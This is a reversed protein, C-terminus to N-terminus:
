SQSNPPPATRRAVVGGGCDDTDVCQGSPDTLGKNVMRSPFRRANRWKIAGDLLAHLPLSVRGTDSRGFSHFHFLLLLSSFLTQFTPPIVSPQFISESLKVDARVDESSIWSKPFSM